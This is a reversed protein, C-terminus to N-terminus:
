VYIHTLERVALRCRPCGKELCWPEARPECAECSVAHGCPLCIAAADDSQCFTCKCGPLPMCRHLLKKVLSIALYVALACLVAGLIIWLKLQLPVHLGILHFMAMALVLAIVTYCAGQLRPASDPVVVNLLPSLKLEDDTRMSVAWSAGHGLIMTSFTIAVLALWEKHAISVSQQFGESLGQQRGEELGRKHGEELGQEWGEHVGQKRGDVFGSEVGQQWADELGEFGSATWALAALLALALTAIGQVCRAPPHM